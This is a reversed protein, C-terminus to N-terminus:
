KIADRLAVFDVGDYRVTWGQKSLHELIDGPGDITVRSHGTWGIPSEPFEQRIVVGRRSVRLMERVAKAPDDFHVLTQKSVVLDFREGPFHLSEAVGQVQFHGDKREGSLPHLHHSDLCWYEEVPLFDGLWGDGGGVDLVTWKTLEFGFIAVLKDAFYQLGEGRGSTREMEWSPKPSESIPKIM